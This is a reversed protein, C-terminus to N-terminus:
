PKPTLKVAKLEEILAMLSNVSSGGEEVVRKTTIALEKSNQRISEAKVSESTLLEIAEIIGQKEIIPSSIDHTLNWVDAGVRVNIGLLEVLKENYFHEAYLPWTILPVGFVVAELVSNWGCHTLFGGVAPHQLIEVQPAWGTIVLGINKSKIREEFGDPLGGIGESGTKGVVWIFPRKSEELALAIETIQAEPFKVMSGFCAFIVSNPKQDDLWSLCGHKDSVGNDRGEGVFFQFLPGIHWVKTDKVKKFHDVYALEIEYFTNHVLGYSRKESQQITELFEGLGTKTKFHESVQSRKMTIKDPLNPVVFSESESNVSEHPKYVRLSHSISHYLFCSPYFLLRPINLEDALEVTWPFFMDSFICDPALDRIVQEFTTKLLMMGRFVAGAKEPTPATNISEMGVPLGVESSPFTVTHVAIPYGAATDRDVSDQFILANHVTTIITSRVGRAAFLRAAHVLPIIHSSTFFPLFVIHLNDGAGTPTMTSTNKETSM